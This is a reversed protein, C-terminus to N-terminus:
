SQANASKEDVIRIEINSKVSSVYQYINIKCNLVYQSVNLNGIWFCVKGDIWDYKKFYISKNPVDKTIKLDQFKYSLM